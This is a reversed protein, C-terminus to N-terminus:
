SRKRLLLGRAVAAFVAACAILLVGFLAITWGPSDTHGGIGKVVLGVGWVALAVAVLASAVRAFAM